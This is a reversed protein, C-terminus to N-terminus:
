KLAAKVAAKVVERTQGLSLRAWEDTEGWLSGPLWKINAKELARREVKGLSIIAFMGRTPTDGQGFRHLLRQVEERNDNLYNQSKTEFRYPDLSNIIQEATAMSLASQGICNATVYRGLYIALNDDDTSAWGLRLGPLGLTKSLSGCMIKFKEPVHGGKTYTKGAYAADYIDVSEFPYVLGEPASPSDTLSIFSREPNGLGILKEKTERDIMVMGATTVIQPYIPYHRKNTVVFDIGRDKLAYIAANIAGTAGCTVVLHKPRHGSQAEAMNKLQEVLKPTGLHDPYGLSAISKHVISFDYGLVETLAQRVIIPDGWSLDNVPKM